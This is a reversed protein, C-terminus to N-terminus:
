LSGMYERLFEERILVLVKGQAEPNSHIKKQLREDTTILAAANAAFYAEFLYMDDAPVLKRVTEPVSSVANSALRLCKKRDGIIAEHLYKSLERVSPLLIKMLKYAKQAWSTGRIFAIRDCKKKLALLFLRAEDQRKRGNEGQLDHLLWDNVVFCRSAAVQVGTKNM